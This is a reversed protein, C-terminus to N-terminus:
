RSTAASVMSSFTMASLARLASRKARTSSPPPPAPVGNVASSTRARKSSQAVARASRDRASLPHHRLGGRPAALEDDLHTLLRQLKPATRRCGTLGFNMMGNYSTCTINMAQGHVPISMPYMGQLEAGSM